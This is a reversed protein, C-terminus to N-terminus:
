VRHVGAEYKLWSYVQDGSVNAIIEKYGGRTGESQSLIEFKWRRKEAFRAYMQFLEGAFLAAEDGGTGGRIEVIVNKQDNPDKPLLLIKIKEELDKIDDNLRGIEHSAMERIESDADELLLHNDEQEKTIASLIRYSEVIPELQSREKNIAQMESPKLTPSLLQETLREYKKSLEDLKELM